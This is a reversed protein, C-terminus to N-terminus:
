HPDTVLDTVSNYSSVLVAEQSFRDRYNSAIAHVVLALDAPDQDISVTTLVRCRELDGKWFGLEERISFGDLLPCIHDVLFRNWEDETIAGLRGPRFLGFTITFTTTLPM